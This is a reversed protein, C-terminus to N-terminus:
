INIRELKLIREISAYLVFNDDCSITYKNGNSLIFTLHKICFHYNVLNELHISYANLDKLIIIRKRSIYVEANSQISKKANNEDLQNFSCNSYKYYVDEGNEVSFDIILNKLNRNKAFVVSQIDHFYQLEYSNLKGSVRLKNFVINLRSLYVNTFRENYKIWKKLVYLRYRLFLIEDTTSLLELIVKSKIFEVNKYNLIPDLEVCMRVFKDNNCKRSFFDIM